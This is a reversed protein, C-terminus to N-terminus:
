FINPKAHEGFLEIAKINYAIAADIENDYLGLYISNGDIMISSKWKSNAKMYSVGRYKSTGKLNPNKNFQNQQHTVLRLNNIKNDAIEHHIIHDVIGNEDWDPNHLKYIIRHAKYPSANIKIIRYTTNGEKRLYGAINGKMIGDKWILEGNNYEFRYNLIELDPLKKYKM